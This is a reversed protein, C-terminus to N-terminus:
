GPSGARAQAGADPPGEEYLRREVATIRWTWASYAVVFCTVVLGLILMAMVPTAFNTPTSRSVTSVPFQFDYLYTPLLGQYTNVMTSPLPLASFNPYFLIFTVVAAIVVGGVFRRADRTAFVQVALYGLPIAVLFAIPEVPINTLSLLPTEPVASVVLLPVTALLVAGITMGIWWRNSRGEMFRPMTYRSGLVLLFLLVGLGVALALAATRGTLVLDPIYPPCAASPNRVATVNVFGCLPRAFVHM